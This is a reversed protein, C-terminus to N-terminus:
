SFWLRWFATHTCGGSSRSDEQGWQFNSRKRRGVWAMSAEGAAEEKTELLIETLESGSATSFHSSRASADQWVQPLDRGQRIADSKKM